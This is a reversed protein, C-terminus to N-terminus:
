TPDVIASDAWLLSGLAAATNPCVPLRGCQTTGNAVHKLSLFYTRPICRADKVAAFIIQPFPSAKPLRM